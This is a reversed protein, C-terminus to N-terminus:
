CKAETTGRGHHAMHFPLAIAADVGARKNPWTM